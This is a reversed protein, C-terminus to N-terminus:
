KQEGDLLLDDPLLDPNDEPRPASEQILNLVMEALRGQETALADLESTQESALEGQQSRVVELEATRRNIEGQLLQLLKLEALSNLADGGQHPPPSAPQEPPPDGAPASADDPKLAALIHSLRAAAAQEAEQVGPGTQRQELLGAARLMEGRASELAFAFSATATMKIRLTEAEDAIQRQEAAVSALTAQQAETLDGDSIRAGELRATEAIVNHQRAALGAVWQEWQALQQRVLEEEAQAIAQQIEQSAEELRQAAARSQEQAQGANGQEAAQAAARNQEGAQGAAAAA